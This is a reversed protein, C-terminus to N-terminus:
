DKMGFDTKLISTAKDKTIKGKLYDQKVEEATKYTSKQTPIGPILGMPDPIIFARKEEPSPKRGMLTEFAKEKAVYKSEEDAEKPGGGLDPRDKYQGGGLYERYVTNRGVQFTEITGIKKDTKGKDEAANFETVLDAVRITKKTQPDVQGVRDKNEGYFAEWKDPVKAIKDSPATYVGKFSDPDNEDGAALTSGAAMDKFVKKPLLDRVSKAFDIGMAFITPDKDQGFKM